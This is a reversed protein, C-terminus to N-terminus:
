AHVCLHNEAFIHARRGAQLCVYMPGAIVNCFDVVRVGSLWEKENRMGDEVVSTPSGDGRECAGRLRDALASSSRSREEDTMPVQSRTHWVVKNAELVQVTTTTPANAHISAHSRPELEFDERQITRKVILSSALAHESHMWERTSQVAAGPVKIAGFTREWESATRSKFASSIREKLLAAWTEDTLPYTGARLQVSAYM